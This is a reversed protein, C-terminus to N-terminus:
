TLVVYTVAAVVPKWPFPLPPRSHYVVPWTILTDNIITKEKEQNSNEVVDGGNSASVHCVHLARGWRNGTHAGHPRRTQSSPRLLDSPAHRNLCSSSALVAHFSLKSTLPAHTHKYGSILRPETHEARQSGSAGGPCRMARGGGGM